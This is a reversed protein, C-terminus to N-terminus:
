ARIAKLYNDPSADAAANKLLKKIGRDVFADSEIHGQLRKTFEYWYLAKDHVDQGGAFALEVAGKVSLLTVFIEHSAAVM